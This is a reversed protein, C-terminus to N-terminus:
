CAGDIGIRRIRLSRLRYSRWNWGVPTLRWRLDGGDIINLILRSSLILGLLRVNRLMIRSRRRLLYTVQTYSSCSAVLVIAAATRCLEPFLVMHAPVLM